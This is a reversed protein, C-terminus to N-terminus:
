ALPAVDKAEAVPDERGEVARHRIRWLARRGVLMDFTFPEGPTNLGTAARLRGLSVNKGEGFDLLGEPTLDLFFEYRVQNSDRKTAEVVAPDDCDVMVNMKLGATGKDKSEWTLIEYKKITGPQDGAPVPILRTSNAQNFTMRAFTAPDFNSM